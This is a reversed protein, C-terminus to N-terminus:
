IKKKDVIFHIPYEGQDRGDQEVRQDLVGEGVVIGRELVM